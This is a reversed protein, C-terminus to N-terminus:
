KLRKERSQAAEQCKQKMDHHRILTAWREQLRAVDKRPQALAWCLVQTLLMPSFSAGAKDRTVFNSFLLTIRVKVGSARGFGPNRSFHMGQKEKCDETYTSTFSCVCGAIWGCMCACIGYMPGWACVGFGLGYIPVDSRMLVGMCLGRPIYTCGHGSGPGHVCRCECVCASTAAWLCMHGSVVTWAGSHKHM